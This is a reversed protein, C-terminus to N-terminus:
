QGASDLDEVFAAIPAVSFERCKKIYLEKLAAMGAPRWGPATQAQSRPAQRQRTGLPILGHVDSTGTPSM